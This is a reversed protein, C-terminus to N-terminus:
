ASIDKKTYKVFGAIVAVLMYAMGLSILTGDLAKNEVIKASDSYAYPTIYKLFETKDTINAVLNAFYMMVAVGIGLAIGGKKMFASIGFCILSLEIQLLFYAVHILLFEKIPVSEGVAKISLLSILFVAVNLVVVQLIVAIMKELVVRFRSVPHSFLFESTHEKEEKSLMAMGLFAAFLGGGIGLVNGCELGYYGILTAFNLQDMGFADSFAGMNSFVDSMSDMESKMEPYIVICVALMFAISLTWVTLAKGGKKLEKFLIPM